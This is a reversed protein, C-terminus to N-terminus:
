TTEVAKQNNQTNIFTGYGSDMSIQKNGQAKIQVIDYSDPM